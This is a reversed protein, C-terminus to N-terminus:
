IFFKFDTKLLEDQYIDAFFKAIESDTHEISLEEISEGVNLVRNKDFLEHHKICDLYTGDLGYVLVELEGREKCAKCACISIYGICGNSLAVYNKM